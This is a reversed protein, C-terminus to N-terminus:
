RPQTRFRGFRPRYDGLGIMEGAYCAIEIMTARDVMSPLFAVCVSVSWQDFRPRTRIVTRNNIRVGCRYVFRKDRFLEELQLHGDYLLRPSFQITVGAKIKPGMRRAKGAAVFCAEIAESPISPRGDTLWLGGNWELEAMKEHDSPTKMRKAAIRAIATAHSDLPDALRGSHMLLPAVGVLDLKLEEYM